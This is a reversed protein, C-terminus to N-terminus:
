DTNTVVPITGSSGFDSTPVCLAWVQMTNNQTANPAHAFQVIWGDLRGPIPAYTNWDMRGPFSAAVALETSSATMSTGDTDTVGGSIAIYNESNATNNPDCAATAIAGVGVASDYKEVSYFAGDFGSDGKPGAPGTAGTAGTDGKPGQPGAPANINVQSSIAAVKGQLFPSLQPIGVSEHALKPRTVAGNRLQKTGILTTAAYAGGSLAIFLAGMSIWLSPSRFEKVVGVELLIAQPGTNTVKLSLLDNTM